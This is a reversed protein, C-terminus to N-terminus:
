VFKNCKGKCWLSQEQITGYLRIIIGRAGCVRDMYAAM